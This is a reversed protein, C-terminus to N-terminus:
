AEGSLVLLTPEHVAVLTHDPAGHEGVLEHLQRHHEPEGRLRGVRRRRLMRIVVRNELTLLREAVRM